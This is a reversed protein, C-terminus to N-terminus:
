RGGRILVISHEQLNHGIGPIYTTVEIGNTLRVRAVKRLASNPKKPTQTYVRTCVGRRQPSAQLAPSATKYRPATRGKRVLQNFTPLGFSRVELGECDSPCGRAIELVRKPARVFSRPACPLRRNSSRTQKRERRLRSGRRHCSTRKASGVGYRRNRGAYGEMPPSVRPSRHSSESAGRLFSRNGHDTQSAGRGAGSEEM